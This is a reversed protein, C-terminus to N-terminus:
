RRSRTKSLLRLIELYLWVLTLMLAFAGYWEMRAPAGRRAASEIMDFDLVLNLAAVAVVFLSFLIGVPGNSYIFGINLGFLSMVLSALYVLAIAGTAAVVGLRFNDSARIMGSKYALLLCLMTGFTLSVSQIVLGPFRAEYMASIGGLALGELVAYVPASYPAFNRALITVLAAVAGGVVGAMVYGSVSQPGMAFFRSWVWSASCVSLFLLLLTKNVVGQVTMAGDVAEGVIFNDMRLAPNSTRMM